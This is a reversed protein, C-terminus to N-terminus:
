IINELATNYHKRLFEIENKKFPFHVKEKYLYKPRKNLEAGLDIMKIILNQDRLYYHKSITEDAKELFELPLLKFSEGEIKVTDITAPLLRAKIDNTLQLM